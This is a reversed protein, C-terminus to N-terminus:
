FAVSWLHFDGKPLSKPNEAIYNRTWTLHKGSRILRDYYTKQWLKGTRRLSKNIENATFSKLSHMVDELPHGEKLQLLAHVHNPMVVFCDLEYREKDFHHLADAVIQHHERLCCSGHCDDLKEELPLIFRRQYETATKQDWPKPHCALWDAKKRNLKEIVKEPLSDALRWTVFVYTSDQHWHPLRYRHKEIDKEPDLFM